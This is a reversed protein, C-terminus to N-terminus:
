EDDEEESFQQSIAALEQDIADLSEQYAKRKSENSDKMEQLMSKLQDVDDSDYLERAQAKLEELQGLATERQTEIKIRQESFDQYRSQLEEITQSKANPM